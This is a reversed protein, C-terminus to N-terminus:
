RRRGYLKLVNAAHQGAEDFDRGADNAAGPMLTLRPSAFKLALDSAEGRGVFSQDAPPSLLSITMGSTPTTIETIHPHEHHATHHEIPIAPFKREREPPESVYAGWERLLRDGESVERAIAPPHALYPPVNLIFYM